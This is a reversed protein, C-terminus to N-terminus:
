QQHHWMVEKFGGRRLKTFLLPPPPVIVVVHIYIYLVIYGHVTHYTEVFAPLYDIHLEKQPKDKLSYINARLM